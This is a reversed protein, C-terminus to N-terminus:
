QLLGYPHHVTIYTNTYYFDKLLFSSIRADNFDTSFRASHWEPREGYFTPTDM